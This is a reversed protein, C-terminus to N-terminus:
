TARILHDLEQHFNQWNREGVKHKLATQAKQWLPLAAEMRARGKKSLTLERSRRWGEAGASILGEKVLPSLNRTLTTRDMGLFKALETISIAGDIAVAVLVSLQTARLGVPRLTDDYSRTITRAAMRVKHCACSEIIEREKMNM